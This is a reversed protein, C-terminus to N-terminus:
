DVTNRLREAEGLNPRVVNRGLGVEAAVAV